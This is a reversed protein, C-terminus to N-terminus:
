LTHRRTKLVPTYSPAKASSPPLEWAKSCILNPLRAVMKPNLFETEDTELRYRDQLHTYVPNRSAPAYVSPQHQHCSIDRHCYLAKRGRERRRNSNPQPVCPNCSQLLEACAPAQPWTSAGTGEEVGGRLHWHTCNSSCLQM